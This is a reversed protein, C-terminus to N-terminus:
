FVLVIDIPSNFEQNGSGQKGWMRIFNGLTDFVEIRHNGSDVVFVNGDFDVDIGTPINFQGSDSGFSGWTLLYNGNIDFKQIRHNKSDAVYIRPNSPPPISSNQPDARTVAVSIPGDFQGTDKGFSGFAYYSYQDGGEWCRVQIRNNGYDAVFLCTHPRGEIRELFIGCPTDFEGLGSGYRGIVEAPRFEDEHHNPCGLILLLLIMIALSYIIKGM